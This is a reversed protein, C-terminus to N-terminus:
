ERNGELWAALEALPVEFHEWRDPCAEDAIRLTVVGERVSLKCNVGEREHRRPCFPYRGGTCRIDM